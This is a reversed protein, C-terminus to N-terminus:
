KAIRRDKGNLGYGTLENNIRSYTRGDMIEHLEKNTFNTTYLTPKGQRSNVIQFFIEKRWETGTEAAIDDLILLDADKLTELLEAESIDSDKRFTSKIKSYLQPLDVFIADFGKEQIAKAAAACLHSKGVGPPGYFILSEETEADFEIVFKLIARYAAEQTDNQPEYNDFTAKKLAPPMISSMEFKELARAKKARQYNSWAEQANKIDTCRCGQKYIFEKGKNTGGIHEAKMLKVSEGCHCLYPEGVQEPQKFPL